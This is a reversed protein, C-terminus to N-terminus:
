EKSLFFFHKGREQKPEGIKYKIQKRIAGFFTNTKSNAIFKIWMFKSQIFNENHMLFPNGHIM